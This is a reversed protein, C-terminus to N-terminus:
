VNSLPALISYHFSPTISLRGETKAAEGGRAPPLLFRKYFTLSDHWQGMRGGNWLEMMGVSLEDNVHRSLVTIFWM